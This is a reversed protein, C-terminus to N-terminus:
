EVQTSKSQTALRNIVLSVDVQTNVQDRGFHACVSECTSVLQFSPDVQGTVAHVQASSKRESQDLDFKFALRSLNLKM